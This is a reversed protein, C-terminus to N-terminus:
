LYGHRALWPLTLLTVPLQQWTSMKERWEMDPRITVVGQEFRNPNGQVVHDAKLQVSDDTVFPLQEPNSMCFRTAMEVLTKRPNSAFDEYRYVGYGDFRRAAVRTLTQNFMWVRTTNIASRTHMYETKGPKDLRPKKRQWSYVCARSDRMLHIMKPRISPTETLIFGHQPQKSSDIIVRSNAIKQIARYLADLTATYESVQRQFEASRLAKSALLPVDRWRHTSQKLASMRRADVGDFGGFAEEFVARWFECDQFSEGCSCLYNGVLGYDWVYAIEGVPVVGDLSGLLRMVLTSGSRGAGGIYTVSVDRATM